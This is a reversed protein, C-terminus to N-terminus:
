FLLSSCSLEIVDAWCTNCLDHYIRKWAQRESIVPINWCFVRLHSCWHSESSSLKSPSFHLTICVEAFAVEQKSQALGLSSVHPQIWAARDSAHQQYSRDLSSFFHLNSTKWVRALLKFCAISFLDTMILLSKFIIVWPVEGVLAMWTVRNFLYM